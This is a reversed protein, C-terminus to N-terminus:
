ALATKIEMVLRNATHLQREVDAVLRLRTNRDIKISQGEVAPGTADELVCTLQTFAGAFDYRSGNAM